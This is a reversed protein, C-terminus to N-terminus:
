KILVVNYIAHLDGLLKLANQSLSIIPNDLKEGQKIYLDVQCYGNNDKVIKNIEDEKKIFPRLITAVAKETERDEAVNTAIQFFGLQNPNNLTKIANKRLVIKSANVGIIKSIISPEFDSDFFITFVAQSKAYKIKNGM